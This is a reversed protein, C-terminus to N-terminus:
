KGICFQGFIRDLIDDTVVEGVVEGLADLAARLELAVLDHQDTTAIEEARVLSDRAGSLSQRCRAATAGLTQSEGALNAESLFERIAALLVELGDGTQSSTLLEGPATPGTPQLDQKTRVVLSSAKEFQLSAIAESRDTAPRCLLRLDASLTERHALDDAIEALGQHQQGDRGATDVLLFRCGEYEIEVALSDRTTGLEESVLAPASAAAAAGWRSQLANFLSSKGANPAGTLVVRPLSQREGRDVMQDVLAQLESRASTLRAQLEEPELFRIDEEDVFDLGAELEALLQLLGERLQGLSASLGGALQSLATTLRADTTADIVGLVAEAQVLDIRGALFARLTFEGPTALRAGAQCCAAVLAEALPQSGIAHLEASPQRTYSQQGPWVFLNCAVRMTRGHLEVAVPLQAYRQPGPRWHPANGALLKGLVDQVQPGSLRVAARAAGAPVTATAVITDREAPIM